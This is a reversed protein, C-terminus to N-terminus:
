DSGRCQKLKLDSPSLVSNGDNQSSSDLLLEGLLAKLAERRTRAPISPVKDSMDKRKSKKKGKAPLAESTWVCANPFEWQGALLGTGPRRVFLWSSSSSETPPASGCGGASDRKSGPRIIQRSIAAVALVDEKKATKEPALPLVAHGLKRAADVDFPSVDELATCLHTLAEEVGNAACVPCSEVQGKKKPLKSANADGILDRISATGGGGSRKQSWLLQGTEQGIRTSWYFDKLPDLEEVGTGSPACYTAGLEMLAQNVDGATSSSSSSGSEGAAMGAQVIQAALDWGHRDKLPPAKVNQAIGRLRALVRCVNGDVVPVNVNFAMSAVASATYRGVGPLKELGAVTNPIEGDLRDVVYQAAEHLLRARRYFGLGSWHANVQQPSAAALDRVTPFATMWRCWYPIVAEVRTQQLMIESVWVGYATVPFQQQLHDSNNDKEDKSTEEKAEKKKTTASSAFYKSITTQKQQKQQKNSKKKKQQQQAFNATSGQWPPPDGRWPLQRRNAHYWELLKSRIQSAEEDSFRHFDLSDHHVWSHLLVQPPSNMTAEDEEAQQQQETDSDEDEQEEATTAAHSSRLVQPAM